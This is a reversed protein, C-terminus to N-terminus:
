RRRRKWCGRVLHRGVPQARCESALHPTEVHLRKGLRQIHANTGTAAMEIEVRAVTKDERDRLRLQHTNTRVAAVPLLARVSTIALLRERFPGRPITGAVHVVESSEGQLGIRGPQNRDQDGLSEIRLDIQGADFQRMM